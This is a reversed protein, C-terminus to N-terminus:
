EDPTPVRQTRGGWSIARRAPLPIAGGAGEGFQTPAEEVERPEFNRLGPERQEVLDFTEAELMFRVGDSQRRLIALVGPPNARETWWRPQGPEWAFLLRKVPWDCWGNVVTFDEWEADPAAQYGVVEGRHFM